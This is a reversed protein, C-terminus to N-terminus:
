RESIECNSIMDFWKLFVNREIIYSSFMRFQKVDTKSDNHAITLVVNYTSDEHIWTTVNANEFLLYDFMMNDYPKMKCMNNYQQICYSIKSPDFEHNRFRTMIRNIDPLLVYQLSDRFICINNNQTLLWIEIEDPVFQPQRPFKVNLTEHPCLDLTFDSNKM